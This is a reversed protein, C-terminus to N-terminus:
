IDELLKVTNDLEQKNENYKLELEEYRQDAIEKDKDNQTIIRQLNENELDYSRIKELAERLQNEATDLKEELTMVKKILVDTESLTTQNDQNFKKAEELQDERMQAEEELRKIRNQYSIIEQERETQEDQLQKLAQEASDARENAVEVEARLNNFKERLKEM